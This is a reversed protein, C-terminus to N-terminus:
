ESLMWRGNILIFRVARKLVVRTRRLEDLTHFRHRGRATIIRKASIPGIGPVRLLEEYSATNVEIPFREPHTLAWVMKPDYRQSLNGDPGFIIESLRFGYQRLLWDAQYLRHERILPTPPHDELPTNPIPQFASFYARGLRFHKYLWATTQLIERDSEDSAGVVFQTTQSRAKTKRQSILSRIWGMPTLLQDFDKQPAIKKLREKNPAELNISVRNALETAREVYSYDAGPLVKLHIYGPFKYRERILESTKIMREMMEKVGSGLGSSLFLGHVFNSRVLGMFVSALEEPRFSITPCDGGRRHLCYVCSNPCSNDMLIKLIPVTKGNPLVAPYIWRYLPDKPDPRRGGDLCSSLCVDYRAAQSLLEIKKFTEM